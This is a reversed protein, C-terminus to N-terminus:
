AEDGWYAGITQMANAMNKQRQNKMIKMVGM